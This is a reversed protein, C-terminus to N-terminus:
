ADGQNLWPAFFKELGRAEVYREAWALWEQWEPSTVGRVQAEARTMVLFERAQERWRWRVIGRRLHAIDQRLIERRREAEERRRKKRREDRLEIAEQLQDAQVGVAMQIIAVMVRNLQDEIRGRKVDRFRYRSYVRPPQDIELRLEGNPRPRPPPDGGWPFKRHHARKEAETPPTISSLERISFWVHNRLLGVGTIARPNEPLKSLWNGGPYWFNGFRSSRRPMRFETTVPWGRVECAAVLADMIALARPLQAPSARVALCGPPPVLWGGDDPTAKKLVKETAVTMPHRWEGPRRPAVHFAPLQERSLWQEILGSPRPSKAEESERFSLVGAKPKSQAPPLPIRAVRKGFEVKAWYGLGPTPINHRTCIKKLGVDSLGYERAITRLPVAWVKHYLEERTLEPSRAATSM